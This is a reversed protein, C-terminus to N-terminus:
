LAAVIKEVAARSEEDSVNPLVDEWLPLFAGMAELMGLPRPILWVHFHAGGDGWRYLHVRGVDPVASLMAREVRAVLPGFAAAVAEPLDSFSGAHVRSALWLTGPLSCGVPAHVTFHGDGWAAPSSTAECIRCPDGGPEGRRPPEPVVRPAPDRATLPGAYPLSM